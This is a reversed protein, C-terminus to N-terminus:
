LGGGATIRKLRSHMLSRLDTQFEECHFVNMILFSNMKFLRLFANFLHCWVTAWPDDVAEINLFFFIEKWLSINFQALFIGM